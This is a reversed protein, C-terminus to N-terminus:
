FRSSLGAGIIWPPDSVKTMLDGVVFRRSEILGNTTGDFRSANAFVTMM